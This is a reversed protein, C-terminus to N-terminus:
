CTERLSVGFLTTMRGARRSVIDVIAAAHHRRIATLDNRKKGRLQDGKRKFTKHFM